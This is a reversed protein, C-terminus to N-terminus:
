GPFGSGRLDDAGLDGPTPEAFLAAGGEKQWDLQTLTWPVNSAGNRGRAARRTRNVLMSASRRIGGRGTVPNPNVIASARVLFYFSTTGLMTGAYNRPAGSGPQNLGAIFTILDTQKLPAESRQSVINEAIGDDDLIAQLVEVPATNANVRAQRSPLATLVPRLRRIVAPTLGPIVSADDLSAFEFQAMEARSLPTPQAAQTGSTSASDGPSLRAEYVSDWYELIQNAIEPDAGRRDLLRQLAEAWSELPQPRRNPDGDRSTRWRNWEDPSRFRVTNINLKGGEDVIQVRLRMNEPIVMESNAEDINCSYGEADPQPCWEETFADVAPDEDHLLFAEGLNIGSRALLSAQLSSLANRAMHQDIEVSYTFEIVTIALLTVVLLTIVLAIGRENNVVVTM